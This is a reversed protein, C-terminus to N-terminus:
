KSDKEAHILADTLEDLSGNLIEELRHSTFGIRHDTVRRDPFNYTRIKESRDGTGVQSKRLESQQRMKKQDMLDLLRTRLVRMAKAKNKIQSREDQCTVVLGSPLHTIRVASDTTNVHQGGHGGARYVDIKLDKPDISLETEEPEFLVAVTAASTHIRGSAETEPVRQVRHVGSEYKLRKYAGHGNVSFVVEKLGGLDTTNIAMLEVDWGKSAAYKTYMRYLDSAFLGAEQGGTGARIEVMCNKNLDPDPEAMLAELETDATKKKIELVELEHKALDVFDKSQKPDSLILQVQALEQNIEALDDSKKLIPTIEALEKAYKVCLANNSIAEPSVLLHELEIKRKKLEEISRSM